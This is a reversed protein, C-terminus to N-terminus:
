RYTQTRIEGSGSLCAAVPRYGLMGDSSDGSICGGPGNKFYACKNATTVGTSALEVRVGQSGAQGTSPLWTDCAQGDNGSIGGTLTKWSGPSQSAVATIATPTPVTFSPPTIKGCIVQVHIDGDGGGCEVVWGRVPSTGGSFNTPFAYPDRPRTGGQDTVEELGSVWGDGNMGLMPRSVELQGSECDGGGGLPIYGSPCYAFNVRPGGTDNDVVSVYKIDMSGPNFTSWVANGEADGSALIKGASPSYDSLKISGAWLRAERGMDSWFQIAGANTIFASKMSGVASKISIGDVAGAGTRGTLDIDLAARLSSTLAGGNASGGIKIGSSLSDTNNNIFLKGFINGVAGGVASPQGEIGVKLGGVQANEVVTLGNKIGASGGVKLLASLSTQFDGKAQPESTVNLPTPANAPFAGPGVYNEAFVSVGIGLVLALAIIGGVQAFKKLFLKM